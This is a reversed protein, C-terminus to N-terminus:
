MRGAELEESVTVLAVTVLRLLASANPFLAAVRTRRKLERTLRELLNSSRMRRRHHLPLDFAAPSEPINEEM